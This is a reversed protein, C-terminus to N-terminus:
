VCKGYVTPRALHALERTWALTTLTPKMAHKPAISCAKHGKLYDELCQEDNRLRADFAEMKRDLIRVPDDTEDCSEADESLRARDLSVSLKSPVPRWGGGQWLGFKLIMKAGELLFVFLARKSEALKAVVMEAPIQLLSILKLASLLSKMLPHRSKLFTLYALWNRQHLSM